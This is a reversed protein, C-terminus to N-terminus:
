NSSADRVRTVVTDSTLNIRSLARAKRESIIAIAEVDRALEDAGLQRLSSGPVQIRQSSPTRRRPRVLRAHHVETTHTSFGTSTQNSNLPPSFSAVREPRVDPTRGQFPYRQLLFLHVPLVRLGLGGTLM